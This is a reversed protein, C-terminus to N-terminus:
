GIIFLAVWLCSLYRHSFQSLDKIGPRAYDYMLKRMVIQVGRWFRWFSLVISPIGRLLLASVWLVSLACSREVRLTDLHSM